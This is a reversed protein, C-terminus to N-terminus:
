PCTCQRLPCCSSTYLCQMPFLFTMFLNELATAQHSTYRRPYVILTYYYRNRTKRSNGFELFTLLSIIDSCCYIRRKPMSSKWRLLIKKQKKQMIRSNCQTLRLSSFDFHLNKYMSVAICRSSDSKNRTFLLDHSFM